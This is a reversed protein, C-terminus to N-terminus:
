SNIKPVEVYIKGDVVKTNIRPLDLLYRIRGSNTPKGAETFIGGHCPCYFQRDADQWQVICGMHSCAASMAIITDTSPDSAKGSNSGDHRIVYGIVAGTTFQIAQNGLQSVTTVFHWTTAIGHPGGPVLPPPVYPPVKPTVAENLVVGIGTGAALSAAAVAGGSLLSRRSVFRAKKPFSKPPAAQAAQPLPAAVEQNGENKDTEPPTRKQPIPLKQTTDDQNEADLTLLRVRLEEVFAPRPEAAEPSASRFLTAIRYIRAQDDTLNQPPHAAHGAQLEEIYHELELYDEFREQDEGAM